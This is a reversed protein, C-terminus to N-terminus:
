SMWSGNSQLSNLSVRKDSLIQQVIPLDQCSWEPGSGYVPDVDAGYEYLIEEVISQESEVAIHLATRGISDTEHIPFHLELLTRVVTAHGKAVALHLANTRNKHVTFWAGRRILTRIVSDRGHFAATEVITMGTQEDCGDLDAGADALVGVVADIGHKAALLLPVLGKQFSYQELNILYQVVEAHGATAAANVARGDAIDYIELMTLYKVIRIRNHRCAILLTTQQYREHRIHDLSTGRVDYIRLLSLNGVEAAYHIMSTFPLDKAGLSETSSSPCGECGYPGIHQNAGWPRFDFALTKHKVFVGLRPCFNYEFSGYGIGLSRTHPEWYKIAYCLLRYKDKLDTSLSHRSKPDPILHKWYDSNSPRLVSNGRLLRYPINSMPPRIGLISPIWLPGGSELVGKKELVAMPKNATIQTEFDSFSLYAVCIKGAFLDANELSIEFFPDVKTTLGGTLYQRVTHHAFHVTEDAEDKIILGRCCEFMLDEHPVKDEDWAKDDPEFAVAEKLEEVHLPRKAVTAWAFVKRALEAKSPTKAIKLLIRRFTDGLGYPLNRLTERIM